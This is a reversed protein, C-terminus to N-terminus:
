NQMSTTLYEPELDFHRVNDCYNEFSNSDDDFM